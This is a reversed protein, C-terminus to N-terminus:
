LLDLEDTDNWSNRLRGERKAYILLDQRGPVNHLAELRFTRIPYHLSWSVGSYVPYKQLWPLNKREINTYSGFIYSNLLSNNPQLYLDQKMAPDFRITAVGTFM